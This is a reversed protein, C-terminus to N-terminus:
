SLVEEEDAHNQVVIKEQNVDKKQHEPIQGGYMGRSQPLVYSDAFDSTESNRCRSNCINRRIEFRTLIVYLGAWGLCVVVGWRVCNQGDMM